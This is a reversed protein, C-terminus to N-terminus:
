FLIREVVFQKLESLYEGPTIWGLMFPCLFLLLLVILLIRHWKNM